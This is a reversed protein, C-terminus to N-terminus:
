QKKIALQLWANLEGTAFGWVFFAALLAAM